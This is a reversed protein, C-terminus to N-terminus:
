AASKPPEPHLKLINATKEACSVRVLSQFSRDDAKAALDMRQKLERPFRITIAVKSKDPM